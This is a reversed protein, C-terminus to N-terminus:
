AVRSWRKRANGCGMARLEDPHEYFIMSLLTKYGVLAILMPMSRSKDMRELLRVRADRDLDEFTRLSSFLLIPLWRVFTLGLLFLTRQPRRIAALQGDLTGAVADIREPALGDYHFLADALARATRRHRPRLSM